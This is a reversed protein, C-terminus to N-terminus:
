SEENRYQEQMATKSKNMYKGKAGCSRQYGHASEYNHMKKCGKSQYSETDVLLELCDQLDEILGICFEDGATPSAKIVAMTARLLERGKELGGEQALLRSQKLAETCSIRNRQRDIEPPAITAVEQEPRALLCTGTAQEKASTVINFYELVFELIPRAESFPTCPSVRVEFIVDRIEESYLDKMDVMANGGERTHPYQTMVKTLTCEATPKVEVKLNQCVVSMLGGLCDTFADPIKDETEIFYYMGNGAESIGRLMNPDHDDGFGFTFTSCAKALQAIRQQTANKLEDAAVIGANALGDTFLWV